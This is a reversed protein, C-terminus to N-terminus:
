TEKNAFSVSLRGAGVCADAVVEMTLTLKATPTEVNEIEIM